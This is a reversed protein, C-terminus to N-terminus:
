LNLDIGIAKRVLEKLTANQEEQDVGEKPIEIIIPFHQNLLRNVIKKNYEVIDKTLMLVAIDNRNAIDELIPRSEQVNNVVHVDTIGALRLGMITVEDAIAAILSPTPTSM